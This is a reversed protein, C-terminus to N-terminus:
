RPLSVEQLRRETLIFARGSPEDVWLGHAHEGPLVADSVIHEVQGGKSLQLLRRAALDVIYLSRYSRQTYMAGIAAIPVDLGAIEFPEARGGILRLIAGDSGSVWIAGDIAFSSARELSVGSDPQLWPQPDAEFGGNPTGPHRWIQGAPAQAGVAGADLVYLNGAYVAMAVPRQWAAANRLPVPRIGTPGGLQWLARRGDLWLVDQDRAALLGPGADQGGNGPLASTAPAEAESGLRILRLGADLVHATASQGGAVAMSLFSPAVDDAALLTRGALPPAEPLAVVAPPPPNAFWLRPLSALRGRWGWLLIAALLCMGAASLTPKLRGRRRGAPQLLVPPGLWREMLGGGFPLTRVRARRLGWAEIPRSEAATVPQQVRQRRGSTDGAPARWGHRARAQHGFSFLRSPLAPPAAALRVIVARRVEGGSGSSDGSGSSGGGLRRLEDLASTVPLCLVSQTRAPPLDKVFSSSCLLLTAGAQVAFRELELEVEWRRGSASVVKGAGLMQEPPVARLKGGDLVYAQSPPLQCFFVYSREILLTTAGFGALEHRHLAREEIVQCGARVARMLSSAVTSRERELAQRVTEYFVSLLPPAGGEALMFLAAPRRHLTGDARQLQESESAGLSSFYAMELAPGGPLVLQVPPAALEMSAPPLLATAAPAAANWKMDRRVVDAIIAM